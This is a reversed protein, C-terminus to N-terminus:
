GRITRSRVKRALQHYSWKPNRAYIWAKFMWSILGNIVPNKAAYRERVMNCDRWYSNDRKLSENDDHRRYMSTVSDVTSYPIRQNLIRTYFEYDSSKEFSRDFGGLKRYLERAIFTASAAMYCWGLSAHTQASMWKPPPALEGLSKLNADVWRTRCFLVDRRERRYAQAVNDLAGPLLLDDAGLFVILEGDASDFGLCIADVLSTGAKRRVLTIPYGETLELTGDSSGGDLILHQVEVLESSQQQVSQLCTSLYRAANLTPTVVSIKTRRPSLLSSLANFTGDSEPQVQASDIPGLFFNLSQYTAGVIRGLILSLAAGNLGWQSTFPVACLATVVVTMLTSRLLWKPREVAWVGQDNMMHVVSLAMNIGLLFMLMGQGLFAPDKYLTILIADAYVYTALAFLCVASGMAAMAVAILSRVQAVGSQRFTQVALPSLSNCVGLAVPNVFFVVYNCTAFIGATADGLNWKIVWLVSFVHLIGIVQAFFPWKGVAWHRQMEIGVSDVRFENGRYAIALWVLAAIASSAATTLYVGPIRLLDWQILMWLFLVQLLASVADICFAAGIRMRALEVRRAFERLLVFPTAIALVGMALYLDTTNGLYQGVGWATVFITSSLIGVMGVLVLVSGHYRRKRDGVERAHYLNFPACVLAEQVAMAILLFYFSISYIGGEATGATRVIMMTTIFRVGSVVAQDALSMLIKLWRSNSLENSGNPAIKQDTESYTFSDISVKSKLEALSSGGYLLSVFGQLEIGRFAMLKLSLSEIKTEDIVLM